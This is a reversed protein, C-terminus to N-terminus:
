SASNFIVFPITMFIIKIDLWNSWNDIYWLDYLVAEEYNQPTLRLNLKSWGTLGPKVDLRRKYWDKYERIEYLTHPRPGVLSMDGILINFFQPLEDLSSTRLFKGIATTRSNVYEFYHQVGQKPYKPCEETLLKKVYDAHDKENNGDRMTRFKFIKFPKGKLGIREQKFLIPGSSSIKIALAILLMIPLAIVIFILSLVIDIGRKIKM